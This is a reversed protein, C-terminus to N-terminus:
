PEPRFGDIVHKRARPSVFLADAERLQGNTAYLPHYLDFLSYDFKSLFASLECFMAEGKYHPVFRVETYVLDILSNSLKDTAGRLAMLEAGQIDMKLIDINSIGETRCFDDITTVSVTTQGITQARSRYYRRGEEPEPRPLLSNTVDRASVYFDKTGPVEAVAMQVLRVLDDQGVAERLAEFTEPFPEFCYFHAGPLLPRYKKVTEGTHAGIDFIIPNSQNMLLRKQDKWAGKNFPVRRIQYGFSQLVAKIRSKIV